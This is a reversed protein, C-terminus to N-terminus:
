AVWAWALIFGILATVIIAAWTTDEDIADPGRTAELQAPYRVNLDRMGADYDRTIQELRDRNADFRDTRIINDALYAPDHRSRM